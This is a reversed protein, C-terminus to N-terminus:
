IYFGINQIKTTRMPSYANNLKLKEITSLIEEDSDNYLIDLYKSIEKNIETEQTKFLEKGSVAMPTRQRASYNSPYSVYNRPNIGDM